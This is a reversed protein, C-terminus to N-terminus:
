SLLTSLTYRVWLFFNLPDATKNATYKESAILVKTPVFPNIRLGACLRGANSFNNISINLSPLLMGLQMLTHQVNFPKHRNGVLQTNTNLHHSHSFRHQKTNIDSFLRTSPTLSVSTYVIHMILKEQAQTLTYSINSTNFCNIRKKPPCHESM